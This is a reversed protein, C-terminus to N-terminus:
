VAIAKLEWLLAISYRHVFGIARCCKPESMFDAFPLPMKIQFHLCTSVQLDGGAKDQQYKGPGAIRRLVVSFYLYPLRYRPLGASAGVRTWTWDSIIAPAVDTLEQCAAGPLSAPLQREFRSTHRKYAHRLSRWCGSVAHM